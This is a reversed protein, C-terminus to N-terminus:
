LPVQMVSGDSLAEGYAAEAATFSSYCAFCAGPVGVVHVHM